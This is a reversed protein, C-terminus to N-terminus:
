RGELSWGLLIVTKISHKSFLTKSCIPPENAQLLAERVTKSCIGNKEMRIGKNIACKVSPFSPHISRLCHLRGMDSFIASCHLTGLFGAATKTTDVDTFQVRVTQSMVAQMKHTFEKLGWGLLAARAAALETPPLLLSAEQLSGIIGQLPLFCPTFPSAIPLVATHIASSIKGVPM